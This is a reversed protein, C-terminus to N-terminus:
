VLGYVGLLLRGLGDHGGLLGCAFVAGAAVQVVGGAVGVFGGLFFMLEEVADLM